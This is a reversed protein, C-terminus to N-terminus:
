VYAIRRIRYTNEVAIRDLGQQLVRSGSQMDGPEVLIGAGIEPHGASGSHM